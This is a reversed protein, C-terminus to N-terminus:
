YGMGPRRAEFEEQREEAALRAEPSFAEAYYGRREAPSANLKRPTYGSELKTNCGAVAALMFIFMWKWM